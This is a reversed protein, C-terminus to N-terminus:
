KNREVAWAWAAPSQDVGSQEDVARVEFTHRGESLKNINEPSSCPYYAGGDLSCEFTADPDPSTFKFHATPNRTVGSPGSIKTTEPSLASGSALAVTKPASFESTNGASDTATATITQGASIAKSTTFTFSVNGSTNTTVSKQGLFTKGENGSPNSFFQVQYTKSTASGLTGVITTGTSTKKASTLVPFNQLGNAGADIDGPDNATKGAADEFGGVLDIGLGTNSFISNRSIANGASTSVSVLVGDQGNFAITNSGGATGDGILNNSGAIVLGEFDNGLAVTGSATTGIRNGLVKNNNSGSIVVGSAGNGSIVNRSAATTGGVLTDSSTNINIGGSVNALAKTGSKDTGIYNGQIRHANSDQVLIGKDGNGSILNRAAPNSGGVVTESTGTNIFIGHLNGRDITGTPDTGIFNGEIHNAVSDGHIEIGFLFRNIVLGKIVSGSSTAIELGSNGVNTGDLEIKLAANNGVAKTNPSTGPQTYGDITVQDTIPPLAGNGTAGVRITKVGAGFVDDPINFNIADTGPTANAQEIAARLTCQNGSGFLNVDCLNDQTNADRTDGPINVTFTTAAHAPASTLMGAAMMAAMLAGAALAKAKRSWVLGERSMQTSM